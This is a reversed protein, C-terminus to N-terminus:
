EESQPYMERILDNYKQNIFKRKVKLTPSLEGSDVTWDSHLLRFRKIKESEGLRKNYLDVEERMRGIVKTDAILEHNNQYHINKKHCWNHLFEFNPLILACTVKENEGVIMIQEIFLSEKVINEIVQPAIYKGSSLKFIEKKRDTIKLFKNDEIVGIDGTHFWGDADIVEKTKEEDNYYGIMLNPGKFLIEGDDAIKIQQEEGIKPGVTGLRIDPYKQHNFAIVPATETLGYGEQVPIQAAQFIKALRMQLAAGGVIVLLLNNGLAERWKSFVLKNAIKLKQKYWWSKGSLEFDMGEKIAWFFIKRKIGTLDKGKALIKDYVKELLRPVAVFCHPQIEKLNDAVKGINEAYYVSLGIYQFSYCCVRELVHCLPLVSLARHTHDVQVFEKFRKAQYIFNKHSLMVGKSLGTTGSTYIITVVDDEKIAEKKSTLENRLEVTDNQKGIEVIELWHAIDKIRNFTYVKQINSIEALVPKIKKYLSEDSVILIKADSHKLIFRYDDVSITPYIPVHIVGIQSMGMDAFNWEPRNNSVTAIKDGPKFGLKLLGLSFYDSYERYDKSNYKVWKGNEKASFVDEKNPWLDNMRDVLDFIRTVEM